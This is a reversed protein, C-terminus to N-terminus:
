LALKPTVKEGVEDPVTATPMVIVDLADFGVTVTGSEPVPM